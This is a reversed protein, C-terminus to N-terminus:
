NATLAALRARLDQCDVTVDRDIKRLRKQAKDAVACVVFHHRLGLIACTRPVVPDERPDWILEVLDTGPRMHYVALLDTGFVGMVTRTQAFLDNQQALTLTSVDIIEFGFETLVSQFDETNAVMRTGNGRTLFVRRGQVNASWLTREGALHEQVFRLRSPTPRYYHGCSVVTLTRFRHRRGVDCEVLDDATVGFAALAERHKAPLTTPVALKLPQRWARLRPLFDVLWHGFHYSEPCGLFLADADVDVAEDPWIHGVASLDPYYIHPMFSHAVEIPEYSAGALVEGAPSVPFDWGPVIQAGPIMASWCPDARYRLVDSAPSPGGLDVDTAAEHEIVTVDSQRCWERLDLVDSVKVQPPATFFEPARLMILTSLAVVDNAGVCAMAVHSFSERTLHSADLMGDRAAHAICQGFLAYSEELRGLRRLALGGLNKFMLALSPKMASLDLRSYADLVGQWNDTRKCANILANAITVDQPAADSAIKLAQAAAANENLGLQAFGVYATITPHPGTIALTAQFLEVARAYDGALYAQKGAEFTDQASPM